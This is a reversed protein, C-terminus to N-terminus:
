NKELQKQFKKWICFSESVGKKFDAYSINPDLTAFFEPTYLPNSKGWKKVKRVQTLTQGNGKHGKMSNSIKIKQEESMSKGYNPNNEGIYKGTNHLKTHERKKLYILEQPPRNYYMDLAKLEEKTLDVLRKEGDSTHTELRHHCDWGKFNGKKALEYNEILEPNLCFPNGRYVRGKFIKRWVEFSHNKDKFNEYVSEGVSLGTRDLFETLRM